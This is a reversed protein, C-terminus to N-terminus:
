LPVVFLFLCPGCVGNPEMTKLKMKPRDGAGLVLNQATPTEGGTLYAPGERRKVMLRARGKYRPRGGRLNPGLHYRKRNPPLTGFAHPPRCGEGLRLADHARRFALRVVDCPGKGAGAVRYVRRLKGPVAAADYRAAQRHSCNEGEVVGGAWCGCSMVAGQSLAVPETGRFFPDRRACRPSVSRIRLHDPDDPVGM